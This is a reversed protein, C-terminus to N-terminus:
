PARNPDPPLTDWDREPRSTTPDDNPEAPPDLAYRVAVFAGPVLWVLFTQATKQARELERSNWIRWTAALNLGALLLGTLAAVFEIVLRQQM